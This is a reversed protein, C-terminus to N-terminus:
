SAAGYAVGFDLINFCARFCVPHMAVLGLAIHTPTLVLTGTSVESPDVYGMLTSSGAVDEVFVFQGCGTNWVPLGTFHWTADIAAEGGPAIIKMGTPSLPTGAPLAIWGSINKVPPKYFHNNVYVLDAMRIKGDHDADARTFAAGTLSTKELLHDRIMSADVLNVIGDGNADGAVQGFAVSAVLLLIACLVARRVSPNAMHPAM